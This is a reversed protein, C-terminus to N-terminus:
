DTKTETRVAEERLKLAEDKRGSSEYSAALKRM